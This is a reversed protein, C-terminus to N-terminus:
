IILSIKGVDSYKKLYNHVVGIYRFGNLPESLFSETKKRRWLSLYDGAIKKEWFKLFLFDIGKDTYKKIYHELIEHVNNEDFMELHIDIHLNKDEYETFLQSFSNNLSM